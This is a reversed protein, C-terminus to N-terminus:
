FYACHGPPRINRCVHQFLVQLTRRQWGTSLIMACTLPKINKNRVWNSREQRTGCEGLKILVYEKLLLTHWILQKSFLFFLDIVSIAINQNSLLTTDNPLLTASQSLASAEVSHLLYSIIYGMATPKVNFLHSLHFIRHRSPHCLHLFASMTLFGINIPYWPIIRTDCENRTLSVRIASIRVDYRVRGVDYRVLPSSVLAICSDHWSTRNLM